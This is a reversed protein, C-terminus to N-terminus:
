DRRHKRGEAVIEMYLPAEGGRWSEGRRASIALSQHRLPTKEDRQFAPSRCEPDLCREQGHSM